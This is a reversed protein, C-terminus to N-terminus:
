DIYNPRWLYVAHINRYNIKPIKKNDNSSITSVAFLHPVNMNVNEVLASLRSNSHITSAHVGDVFVKYGRVDHQRYNVTWRIIAGINQLPIVGDISLHSTIDRSSYTTLTLAEISSEESLITHKGCKNCGNLCTEAMEWSESEDENGNLPMMLESSEPKDSKAEFQDRKKSQFTFFQTYKDLLSESQSKLADRLQQPVENLNFTQSTFQSMEMFKSSIVRM